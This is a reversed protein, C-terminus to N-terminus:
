FLPAQRAALPPPPLAFVGRRAAPDTVVAGPPHRPFRLTFTAGHRRGCATLFRVPLAGWLLMQALPPLRPAPPRTADTVYEYTDSMSTLIWRSTCSSLPM